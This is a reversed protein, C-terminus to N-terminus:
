EEPDFILWRRTEKGRRIVNLEVHPIIQYGMGTLSAVVNERLNLDKPDFPEDSCNDEFTGDAASTRRAYYVWAVSVVNSIEVLLSDELAQGVPLQLNSYLM